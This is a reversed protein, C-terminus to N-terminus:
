QVAPYTFAGPIVGGVGLFERGHGNLAYVVVKAIVGGDQGLVPVVHRYSFFLEWRRSELMEAIAGGHEVGYAVHRLVLHRLENTILFWARPLFDLLDPNTEEIVRIVGVGKSLYKGLYAAASKRVRQCDVAAGMVSMNLSDDVSAVAALWLERYRDASIGWPSRLSRRGVVVVHLHLPMGGSELFRKEQVETCGVILDPLGAASLERRLSTKLRHVVRSWEAAVALTQFGSGPLTFTLFSLVDHGYARELLLVGNEVLSRGYKTIGNRGRVALLRTEFAENGKTNTKSVESLGISTLADPSKGLVGRASESWLCGSGNPWTRAVLRSQTM